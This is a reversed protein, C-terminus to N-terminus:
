RGFAGGALVVPEGLMEFADRGAPNQWPFRGPGGGVQAICCVLMKMQLWSLPPNIRSTACLVSAQRHLVGNIGWLGGLMLADALRRRLPM